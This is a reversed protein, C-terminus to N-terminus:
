EGAVIANLRMPFKAATLKTQMTAPDIVRIEDPGHEYGVVVLWDPDIHVSAVFEKEIGLSELLDFVAVAAPTFNVTSAM